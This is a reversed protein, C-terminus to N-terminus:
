ETVRIVVVFYKTCKLLIANDTEFFVNYVNLYDRTSMGRYLHNKYTTRIVNYTTQKM